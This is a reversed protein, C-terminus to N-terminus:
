SLRLERGKETTIRAVSRIDLIIGFPASKTWSIGIPMYLANKSGRM